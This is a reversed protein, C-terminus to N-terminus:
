YLLSNIREFVKIGEQCDRDAERVIFHATRKSLSRGLLASEENSISVHGRRVFRQRRGPNPTGIATAAM